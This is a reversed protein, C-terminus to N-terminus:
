PRREVEPTITNDQGREGLARHYSAVIDEPLQTKAIHNSLM